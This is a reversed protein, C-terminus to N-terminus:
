ITQMTPFSFLIDYMSRMLSLAFTSLFVMTRGSDLSLLVRIAAALINSSFIASMMMIPSPKVLEEVSRMFAKTYIDYFVKTIERRLQRAENDTSMMDPLERYQQVISHFDRIMDSGYGAYEMIHAICDERM